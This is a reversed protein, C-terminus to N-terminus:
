KSRNNGNNTYIDKAEDGSWDTSVLSLSATSASILEIRSVDAGDRREVISVNGCQPEGLTEDVLVHQPFDAVEPSLVHDVPLGVRLIRPDPLIIGLDSGVPVVTDLSGRCLVRQLALRLNGRECLYRRRPSYGLTSLTM